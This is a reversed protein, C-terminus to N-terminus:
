SYMRSDILAPRRSDDEAGAAQLMQLAACGDRQLVEAHGSRIEVARRIDRTRIQVPIRPREIARREPLYKVISEVAHPRARM